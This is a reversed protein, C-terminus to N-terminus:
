LSKIKTDVSGYCLFIVCLLIKILVISNLLELKSFLTTELVIQLKIITYNTSVGIM